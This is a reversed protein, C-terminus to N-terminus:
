MEKFEIVVRIAAFESGVHNVTKHLILYKDYVYNANSKYDVVNSKQTVVDKENGVGICDINKFEQSFMKIDTIMYKDIVKGICQNKAESLYLKEQALNFAISSLLKNNDDSLSINCASLSNALSEQRSNQSLDERPVHAITLDAFTLSGKQSIIWAGDSGLTYNGITTNCLMAGNSGLYYWNGNASQIWTDKAMTGDSWMYYWNAGDQLWGTTAKGVSDIYYWNNNISKWYAQGEANAIRPTLACASTLALTLALTKLIKNKTM